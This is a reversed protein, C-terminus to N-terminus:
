RKGGRWVYSCAGLSSLGRAFGVGPIPGNFFRVCRRICQAVEKGDKDDDNADMLGILVAQNSSLSTLIMFPKAKDMPM